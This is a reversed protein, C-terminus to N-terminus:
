SGAQTGEGYKDSRFAPHGTLNSYNKLCLYTVFIARPISISLNNM